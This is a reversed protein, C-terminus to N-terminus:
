RSSQKIREIEKKLATLEAIERKLRDAEDETELTRLIETLAAVLKEDKGILNQFDNNTPNPRGLGDVLDKFLNEVGREEISQASLTAITVGNRHLAFDDVRTGLHLAVDFSSRIAEILVSQLDGRHIVWYPAGYRQEVAAGLPARALVRATQANM